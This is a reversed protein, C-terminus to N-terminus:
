CTQHCVKPLQESAVALTDRMEKYNSLTFSEEGMKICKHFLKILANVKAKSMGTELALEAFEFDQRTRFPAWPEPDIPHTSDLPTARVFDELTVVESQKGSSPHYEIKIASGEISTDDTNSPETNLNDTTPITAPLPQHIDTTVVPRFYPLRALDNHPLSSDQLLLMDDPNSYAEHLAPFM